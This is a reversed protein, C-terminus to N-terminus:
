KPAAYCNLSWPGALINIHICMYIYKLSIAIDPHIYLVSSHWFWVFATATEVYTAINSLFVCLILSRLGILNLNRKCTYNGCQECVSNEFYGRQDTEQLVDAEFHNRQLGWIQPPGRKGVKPRPPLNPFLHSFMHNVDIAQILFVYFPSHKGAKLVM